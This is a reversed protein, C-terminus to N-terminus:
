PSVRASTLIASSDCLSQPVEVVEGAVEGGGVLRTVHQAGVFRDSTVAKGEAPEGGLGLTHRIWSTVGM